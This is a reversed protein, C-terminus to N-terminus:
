ADTNQTLKHFIDELSKQAQALGTLPLDNESAIRFLEARLDARGSRVLYANPAHDSLDIGSKQFINVDIPREFEVIVGPSGSLKEKIGSLSDNAVLEGRDIIVVHGCIAEVEQMIHTSIIVTKNAAINKITNRIEIIQNPDLGSTPEDLILVKPDHILAKALGARQRYGKSLVGLRKSREQSLGVLEITEEVRKKVNKLGHAGAIFCLFERVYMDLYMPNHEPLYGIKKKAKVPEEVVDLGEVSVTGSTPRMYGTAMKMTTSKGAGNPGLFGTIAGEKAEFSINNVATQEGFVKTVNRVSVAM